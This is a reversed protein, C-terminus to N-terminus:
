KALAAKINALIEKVTKASPKCQKAWARGPHIEDWESRRQGFRTTGVHHNGFGNVAVNWIPRFHRILIGEAFVIWVPTVALYRCFFDAEDLNEAAKVSEFHESLRKYLVQGPNPEVIAASELDEGQSAAGGKRGGAPVAKGVYIPTDKGSIDAYAPFAGKYYITYVGGGIFPEAPPLPGLPRALLTSVVSAAVNRYDLPDFIGEPM